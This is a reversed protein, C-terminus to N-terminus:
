IALQRFEAEVPDDDFGSTRGDMWVTVLSFGFEFMPRHQLGAGVVVTPTPHM